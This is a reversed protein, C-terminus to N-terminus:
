RLDIIEVNPHKKPDFQFFSDALKVNPDFSQITFIFHKGNGKEFAKWKKVLFTKKDIFLRLKFFSIDSRDPDEPSLDIVYLGKGRSNKDEVFVYKFSKDYSELIDKPTQFMSGGEQNAVDLNVEELDKLFTWVNKGDNYVTQGEFDLRYMEDKVAVELLLSDFIGKGNIYVKQEVSAKFSTIESYKKSAKDLVEKAKEDKQAHLNFLLTIFLIATSLIRM